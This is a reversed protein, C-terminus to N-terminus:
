APEVRIEGCSGIHFCSQLFSKIVVDPLSANTKHNKASVGTVSLRRQKLAQRGAQPQALMRGGISDNLPLNGAAWQNTHVQIAGRRPSSTRSVFDEVLEQRRKLVPCQILVDSM